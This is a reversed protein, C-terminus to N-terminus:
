VPRRTSGGGATCPPSLLPVGVVKESLPVLGPSPSCLLAASVSCLSLPPSPSRPSRLEEDPPFFAAPPCIQLAVTALSIPEKAPPFISAAPPCIQLAVTALSIPEKAPPLFDSKDERLKLKEERLSFPRPSQTVHCLLLCLQSCVSGAARIMWLLACCCWLVLTHPSSTHPGNSQQQETGKM